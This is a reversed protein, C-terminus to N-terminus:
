LCYKQFFFILGEAIKGDENLIDDGEVLTTNTGHNNKNFFHNLQKGYNLSLLKNDTVFSPNPNDFIAEQPSNESTGLSVSFDCTFETRIELM